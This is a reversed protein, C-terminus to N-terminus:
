GRAAKGAGYALAALALLGLAAIGLRAREPDLVLAQGRASFRGHAGYPGPVPAFLNDPRAPDLPADTHQGDYAIRAMMRDMWAPAVMNGLIAEVTSKAVWLERPAREAARWVARAAAEPQYIPPVPQAQYGMKNRSWDFQPTNMGPCHVMSLRIRSRERILESRLSDTFGQIAHKAGCYASQLPISRYALASGVQVITGRDRPRMRRLAAMTGHVFGLYTVETVRRFEEATVDIFRAFVTAMASNVWVDIPGLLREAEEAAAEVAAFDAVDAPLALGHGGLAAIERCTDELRDRDRAILGVKWGRRGFEAAIARGLGASAGTIVVIRRQAPVNPM